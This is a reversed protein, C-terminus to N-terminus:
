CAERGNSLAQAKLQVTEMSDHFFSIQVLRFNL